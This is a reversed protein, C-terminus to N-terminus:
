RQIKPRGRGFSLSGSQSISVSRNGFGTGIGLCHLSLDVTSNPSPKHIRKAALQNLYAVHSVSDTPLTLVRRTFIERFSNPFIREKAVFAWGRLEVLVAIETDSLRTLQDCDINNHTSIYLPYVAFEFTHEARALLRLFYRALVNNEKRRTLWAIVNQNDGTYAILKHEFGHKDVLLFLIFSCLEAVAIILEDEGPDSTSFYQAILSAPFRTYTSHSFNIAGCWELTAGSGVWVINM